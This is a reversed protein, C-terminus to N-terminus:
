RMQYSYFMMPQYKNERLLRFSTHRYFSIFFIQFAMSNEIFISQFLAM